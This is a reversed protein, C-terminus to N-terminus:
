MKMQMGGSQRDNKKQGNRRERVIKPKQSDEDDTEGIMALDAALYLGDIAIDSWNCDMETPAEM